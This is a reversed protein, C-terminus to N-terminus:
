NLPLRSSVAQWPEREIFQWYGIPRTRSDYDMYYEDRREVPGDPMDYGPAPEFPQDEPTHLKVPPDLEDDLLHAAWGCHFFM